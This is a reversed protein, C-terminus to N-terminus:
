SSHDSTETLPCLFILPKFCSFKRSWMLSASSTKVASASIDVRCIASVISAFPISSFLLAPRCPPPIELFALTASSFFVFLFTTLPLFKKFLLPSLFLNFCYFIEQGAWAGEECLAVSSCYLQPPCAKQKLCM